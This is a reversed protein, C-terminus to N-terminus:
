SERRAFPLPEALTIAERTIATTYCLAEVGAARAADFAAAYSPDIDHALDFTTCDTRQVLYLMVARHGERVMKALDALHRAGRATVADPFEALGAERVLHVNKVELYCDALGDGTLLFDVRSKEGYKVEPRITEYHALPAIAKAKLAEAVIRNPHATNIGVPGSPLDVLELSYALKRKPDDSKSLWVPLGPMNLGIMGGPNACHATVCEGSELKIDALFRKYRKILTGPVLPSSFHM